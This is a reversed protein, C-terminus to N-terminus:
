FILPIWMYTQDSKLQYKLGLGLVLWSLKDTQQQQEWHPHVTQPPGKSCHAPTEQHSHTSAAELWRGSCRDWWRWSSERQSASSCWPRETLVLKHAGYRLSGCMFLTLWFLGLFVSPLNSHRRLEEQVARLQWCLSPDNVKANLEWVYLALSISITRLTSSLWVSSHTSISGSAKVPLSVGM